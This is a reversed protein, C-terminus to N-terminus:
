LCIFNCIFLDKMKEKCLTVTLLLFFMLNLEVDNVSGLAVAYSLGASFYSRFRM